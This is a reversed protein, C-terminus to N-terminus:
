HEVRALGHAGAVAVRRPALDECRLAGVGRGEVVGVFVLRAVGDVTQRVEATPIVVREGERPRLRIGQVARVRLQPLARRPSMCGEREHLVTREAIQIQVPQIAAALARTAVGAAAGPSGTTTAIARATCRRITATAAVISAAPAEVPAVIE